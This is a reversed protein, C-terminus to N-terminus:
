SPTSVEVRIEPPPQPRRRSFYVVSLSLITALFLVAAIGGLPKSRRSSPTQPVDTDVEAGSRVEEIAIRAEGIDRLRNRPEKILCRRLLGLVRAPLNAPLMNWDPEKMMVAAMTESVTERSFPMRGTLMEYLVVGLAWIDARRDVTKGK